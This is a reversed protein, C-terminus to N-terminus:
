RFDKFLEELEELEEDSVNEKNFKIEEKQM